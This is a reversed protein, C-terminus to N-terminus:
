ILSRFDVLEPSATRFSTNASWTGTNGDADKFRIKWWYVTYGALPLGAYSQDACRSGEVLGEGTIDIWGSNWMDPTDANLLAESTAVCIQVESATDGANPDEFIASFEPTPENLCVDYAPAVNSEIWLASPASPPQGPTKTYGFLYLDQRIDQIKQECIRAANIEVWPYAHYSFWLYNDFVDTKLRLGSGFSFNITPHFDCCAGDWGAPIHPSFDVDDWAALVATSYNHANVFSAYNTTLYGLLWIKLNADQRYVECKEAGDVSMFAGSLSWFNVQQHRNDGSGNNRIGFTKGAGGQEEIYFFACVATDGGTDGSIDVDNWAGAAPAKAIHNLFFSGEGTTIYAVLYIDIGTHDSLYIEFIDTADTGIFCWQHTELTRQRVYTDGSGNKRLMVDQCWPVHGVIELVVGAVNGADAGVHATIDVDTWALSAGPNVDVRAVPVL